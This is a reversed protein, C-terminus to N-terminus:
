GLEVDIATMEGARVRAAHSSPIIGAKFELSSGLQPTMRITRPKVARPGFTQRRKPNQYTVRTRGFLTFGFRGKADFLRGALIPAPHWELAGAQNLRFPEWGLCMWLWMQLFEATAGSLRAVFGAGHLAPDAYASSVLFSSNELISRGYRQPPQFPILMHFFDDYFEEHLGCRLLELLYKYEMHLWVSHHELWGPSFIRCRGIEESEGLLSACVRYMRLREDYLPSKRVARYIARAKAPDREQRLAHVIGELFLPLTHLRWKTPTVEPQSGSSQTYGVVEHYFYSPYLHQKRDFSKAIGEDVKKVGRECLTRLADATVPLERGSFGLRIQERYEEKASTSARWWAEAPQDIAADLRGILTVLEEPMAFAAAPAIELRTLADLLFRMWRKLEFTECLSSGLLGPLGNLADYWNPKDAEMEIGIGSPDLSALKNAIVVVMKVLLTTTYIPGRGHDSRLTSPDELRSQLVDAKERDRRVSRFQRVAGRVLQYKKARPVVVHPNDFFTFVRREILLERLREPYLALYSEVLDLNYTWHDTWFGEGHEADEMPQSRSVIRNLFAEPSEGIKIHRRNIYNLLEGPTYPKSLVERLEPIAQADHPATFRIGKFVLPNFGDAQILNFFTVINRDGLDPYFWADNRRNQNVDRYNANGQSFPTAPVVFQNYDRELDGHKRSYVYFATRWPSRPSAGDAGLHIPVGGRMANDLFTQRCYLDFASLGSKTAIPQTLETILAENQQAKTSFFEPTAITDLSANLDEVSQMHGLLVYMTRSEGPRLRLRAYSMACPTKESAFQRKPVRFSATMFREPVAGDEHCGFVFAPDILPDLLRLTSREELGALYFNGAVIPVVEPRDNPEVKLRYFPARRELNDVMVWAEITRSMHKLFYDRMGHPVISPLGDLWELELTRRGHNTLTCVRALAAFPSRPITFYRVRTELNFRRHREELELEHMRIHMRQVADAAGSAGAQFPEYVITRGGAKWKFFTRFGQLPVTRYARNAPQFEMIPHDKDQIGFGAIAQGRNVYFVWMPVGWLGAIGPLFSAFPRARHYGEIVFANQELRHTKSM